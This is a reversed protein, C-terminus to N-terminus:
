GKVIKPKFVNQVYKPSQTEFRGDLWGAVIVMSNSLIILICIYIPSSQLSLYSCSKEGMYMHISIISDLLITM